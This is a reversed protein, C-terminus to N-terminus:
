LSIVDTYQLNIQRVARIYSCRATATLQEKRIADFTKLVLEKGIGQGRHNHPVESHILSLHTGNLVYSVIAKAGNTLALEFQKDFKNHTLKSDM